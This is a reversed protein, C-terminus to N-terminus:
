SRSKLAPWDSFAFLWLLAINVIPVLTLLAWWGSYGAKRLVRAASWVWSPLLIVIVLLPLIQLLAQEAPSPAM